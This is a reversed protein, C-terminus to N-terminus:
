AAASALTSADAARAVLLATIATRGKKSLVYRHTTGVKRILGHARLLRLQRTIAASQKKLVAPDSTKACLRDRLDRNRFGNVAFEGRNVAELLRADADALPNLARVRGAKWQVPRCLKRMLEGLPTKEEVTAMSELYRDNAAQSIVARRHLDAVGKRLPLWSKGGRPQGEKARFVRFDQTDNITTEVRLVSGQKDYMKISNAKVRHKIRM